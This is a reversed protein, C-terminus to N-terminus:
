LKLLRAANDWLIKTKVEDTYPEKLFNDISFKLPIYPKASAYVYQNQLWSNAAAYYPEAGGLFKYAADIGSTEIYVNPHRLAINIMPLIWPYGAHSCIIVLDPFDTSVIDINM